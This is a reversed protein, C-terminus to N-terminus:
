YIFYSWVDFKKDFVAPFQEGSEDVFVVRDGIDLKPLLHTLIVIKGDIFHNSTVDLVPAPKFMEVSM